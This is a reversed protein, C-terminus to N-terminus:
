SHRKSYDSCACNKPCTWHSWYWQCVSTCIHRKSPHRDLMYGYKPSTKAKLCLGSRPPAIDPQLPLLCLTLLLLLWGFWIPKFQWFRPTVAGLWVRSCVCDSGWCCLSSSSSTPSPPDGRCPRRTRPCRPRPSSSQHCPPCTQLRGQRGVGPKVEYGQLKM